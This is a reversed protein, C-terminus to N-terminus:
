AKIAGGSPGCKGDIFNLWRSFNFNPNQANCFLGLAHVGERTIEKRELMAKVNIALAIFHKKSM